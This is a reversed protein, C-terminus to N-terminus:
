LSPITKEMRIGRSGKVLVCAGEVPHEALWAALEDSTAFHGKINAPTGASDLAKAFEEGVLFAEFDSAAIKEVVKVHEAVSNDGLERMDGLLAVKRPAEMLAFSDLAVGMSSPNANYADLILTNRETKQM